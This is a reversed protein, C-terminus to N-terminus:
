DNWDGPLVEGGTPTCAWWWIAPRVGASVLRVSSDAMGVHTGAASCGQVLYPNCQEPTPRVQPPAKTNFAFLAMWQPESAPYAWASGGNNCRGYRTAFLITNATGDAHAIREISLGGDWGTPGGGFVQYNAGFNGVAWRDPPRGIALVHDPQSPDESLVFETVVQAFIPERTGPVQNIITASPPNGGQWARFLNEREIFPLLYVFATGTGFYPSSPQDLSRFLPPLRRYVDNCCHSALALIKLSNRTRTQNARDRVTQVFPMLLGFLFVLLALLALLDVMSFGRRRSLRRLSM